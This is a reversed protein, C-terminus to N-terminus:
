IGALNSAFYLIRGRFRLKGLRRRFLRATTQARGVGKGVSECTWWWYTDGRQIVQAPTARVTDHKGGNKM